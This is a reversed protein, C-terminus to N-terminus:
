RFRVLHPSRRVTKLCTQSCFYEKRCRSCQHSTPDGCGFCIPPEEPEDSMQRLPELLTSKLFYALTISKAPNFEVRRSNIQNTRDVM